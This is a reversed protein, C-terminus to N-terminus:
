RRDELVSLLMKGNRLKEGMREVNVLIKQYEEEKMTHLIEPLETLSDVTIGIQNEEVMGALAAKKWIIVPIGSAIYLSTKHPNNYKLYEGYEGTCSSVSDGDWVLGFGGELKQPLEEPKYQGEYVVNEMSVSTDYNPGYLHFRISKEVQNLSYIYKVKEKKLNGAIIIDEKKYAKKEIKDPLLYDFLGLSYIKKNAYGHTKLYETMVPNHAILVDAYQLFEREREGNGGRLSDLDHILFVLRINRSKMKRIFPIAVTSVKPYMALPYQILLEADSPVRRCIRNWDNWTLLVMKLKDLTGKEESHHVTLPNWHERILIEAIDNRAKSGAHNEVFDREIVCYKEMKNGKM